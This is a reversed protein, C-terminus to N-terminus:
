NNLEILPNIIATIKKYKEENKPYEVIERDFTKRITDIIEKKEESAGEKRKFQFHDYILENRNNYQGESIFNNEKLAILFQVPGKPGTAWLIKKGLELDTSFHPRFDEITTDTILDNTDLLFYMEEVFADRDVNLNLNLNIFNTNKRDISSNSSIAKKYTKIKGALYQLLGCQVIQKNLYNLIGDNDKLNIFISHGESLNNFSNNGNILDRILEERIEHTKKELWQIVSGLEINFEEILSLRQDKTLIGFFLGQEEEWQGKKKRLEFNKEKLWIEKDDDNDFLELQRDIKEKQEQLSIDAFIINATDLFESVVAVLEPIIGIVENPRDKSTPPKPNGKLLFISSSRKRIIPVLIKLDLAKQVELLHALGVERMVRIEQDEPLGFYKAILERRPHDETRNFAKDLLEKMKNQTM